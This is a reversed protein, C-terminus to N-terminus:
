QGVLILSLCSASGEVHPLWMVADVSQLHKYDYSVGGQENTGRISPDSVNWM